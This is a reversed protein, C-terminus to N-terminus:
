LYSINSKAPEGQWSKIIEEIQKDTSQSPCFAIWEASFVCRISLWNSSPNNALEICQNKFSRQTNEKPVYSSKIVIVNKDNPMKAIADLIFDERANYLVTNTVKFIERWIINKTFYELSDDIQESAIKIDSFDIKPMEIEFREDTYPAIKPVEHITYYEIAKRVANELREYRYQLLTLEQHYKRMRRSYLFKFIKEYWKKELTTKINHKKCFETTKNM